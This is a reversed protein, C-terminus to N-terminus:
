WSEAAYVTRLSSMLSIYGHKIHKIDPSPYEVQLRKASNGVWKMANPIVSFVRTRGVSYGPPFHANAPYMGDEWPKMVQTYCGHDFSHNTM